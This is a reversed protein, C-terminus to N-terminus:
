EDLWSAPFFSKAGPANYDIGYKACLDKLRAMRRADNAEREKAQAEEQLTSNDWYRADVGYTAALDRAQEEATLPV